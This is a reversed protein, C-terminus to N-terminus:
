NGSVSALPGFHPCVNGNDGRIFIEHLHDDATYSSPLRGNSDKKGHIYGMIVTLVEGRAAPVDEIRNLMLEVDDSTAVGGVSIRTKLREWSGRDTRVAGCSAALVAVALFARM